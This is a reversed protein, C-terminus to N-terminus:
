AVRGRLAVAPTMKTIVKTPWFSVFIVMLNVTLIATLVKAFTFVPYFRDGFAMGFQEGSVGGFSLGNVATWYFLPGAWLATLVTAFVGHMAGELVFMFVVKNNSMGLAMFTGIEKKRRFVALAQTDFIAILGLFLLLGYFISQGITKSKVMELTDKMLYNFDRFVWGKPAAQVQTGQKVWVTTAHNQTENMQNVVQHSLYIQGQDMVPAATKLIGVIEADLANFAGQQSRWRVTLLDGKTVGLNKAFNKGVMVSLQDDGNTKSLSSFDLSLCSQNPNIGKILVNKFRGNPYIAGPIILLPCAEGSDIKTQIEPPIPGKADELTMPDFPDYLENWYSGGAIEENTRITSMEDLMGAMLSQMFLMAALTLSLILANLWTRLGAAFLNKIAINFTM